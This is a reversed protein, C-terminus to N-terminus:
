LKSQKLGPHTRPEPAGCMLVSAACDQLSAPTAATGDYRRPHRGIRRASSSRRPACAAEDSRMASQAPGMRSRGNYSAHPHIYFRRAFLPSRRRGQTEGRVQLSCGPRLPSSEPVDDDNVEGGLQAALSRIINTGLSTKANLPRLKKLDENEMAIGLKDSSM